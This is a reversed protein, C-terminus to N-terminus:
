VRQREEIQKKVDRYIKTECDFTNLIEKRKEEALECFMGM